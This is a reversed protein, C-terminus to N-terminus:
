GRIFRALEDDIDVRINLGLIARLTENMSVSRGWAAELEDRQRTLYDRVDPDIRIVRSRM